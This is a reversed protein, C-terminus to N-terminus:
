REEAKRVKEAARREISDLREQDQMNKVRVKEKADYAISRKYELNSEFKM